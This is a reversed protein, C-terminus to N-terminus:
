AVTGSFQLSTSIMCSASLGSSDIRAAFNTSFCKKSTGKGDWERKSDRLYGAFEYLIIAFTEEIIFANKKIDKEYSPMVLNVLIAIGMGILIIYLENLVTQISAQQVAYIHLAIVMAIVFGNQLRLKVLVPVFLLIFVGLVIPNYGLLEFFIVGLLLALLSAFFKDSITNITRKQTKEICMIVIIAAFTAFELDLLSAIWLALAAGVATKITRYGMGVM